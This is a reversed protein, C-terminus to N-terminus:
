KCTHIPKVEDENVQQAGFGFYPCDSEIKIDACGWGILVQVITWKKKKWYVRDGVKYKM